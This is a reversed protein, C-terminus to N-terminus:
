VDFLGALDANTQYKAFIVTSLLSSKVITLRLFSCPLSCLKEPHLQSLHPSSGFNCVFSLTVAVSGSVVTINTISLFQRGQIKYLIYFHTLHKLVALEQLITSLKQLQTSSECVNYM